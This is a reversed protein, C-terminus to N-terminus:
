LENAKDDTSRKVECREAPGHGPLVDIWRYSYQFKLLVVNYDFCARLSVRHGLQAILGLRDRCLRPGLNQGDRFWRPSLLFFFDIKPRTYYVPDRESTLCYIRCVLSSARALSYFSFTAVRGFSGRSNGAQNVIYRRFITFIIMASEVSLHFLHWSM